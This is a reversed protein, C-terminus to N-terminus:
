SNTTKADNLEKQKLQCSTCMHRIGKDECLHRKSKLNEDVVWGHPLGYSPKDVVSPCIFELHGDKFGDCSWRFIRNVSM